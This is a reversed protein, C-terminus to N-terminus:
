STSLNCTYLDFYWLRAISIVRLKRLCIVSNDEEKLKKEGGSLWDSFTSFDEDDGERGNMESQPVPSDEQPAKKAKIIVSVVLAAVMLLMYVIDGVSEGMKFYINALKATVICIVLYLWKLKIRM